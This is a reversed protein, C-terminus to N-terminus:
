RERRTSNRRALRQGHHLAWWASAPGEDPQEARPAAAGADAEAWALAVAIAAARRLDDAEGGDPVPKAPPQDAVVDPAEVGAGDRIAATLLTLLGYFLALTLFLLTMGIATIALAIPLTDM